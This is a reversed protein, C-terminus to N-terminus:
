IKWRLITKGFAKKTDAEFAKKIDAFEEIEIVNGVLRSLFEPVDPNERYIRVTKEFDRKGSRSTGFLRLGKELIMRTNIPVPYESVGLIAITGEPKIYEIIQEIAIPSGNAGVCEFAHDLSLDDPIETTLHTEYAFSFDSLKDSNIGFVHIRSEPLMKTLLLSTIFALNGDGWVGIDERREHAINKFRTIAHVSVSVLETFAAVCLDIDEPLKVLREPAIGYYEQLFGDSSSGCFKSSRLYNEAIYDDSECPINPIMVVKDGPEFLPSPSYVVEGVAEHILAMPLKEKLVKADRTGQYYRQDANCISLALPRVIVNENLELDEFAIEFRRPSKLRYVTNIM